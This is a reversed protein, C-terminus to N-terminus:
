QAPATARVNDKEKRLEYAEEILKRVTEAVSAGNSDANIQQLKAYVDAKVAISTWPTKRKSPSLPKPKETVVPLKMAEGKKHTIYVTKYV